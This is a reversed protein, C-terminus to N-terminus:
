TTSTTTSTSTSTSTTTGSFVYDITTKASSTYAVVINTLHTGNPGGSRYTYVDQTTNQTLKIFDYPDINLGSIARLLADKTHKPINREDM